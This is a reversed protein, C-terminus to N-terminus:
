KDKKREQFKPILKKEENKAKSKKKRGEKLKKREKGIKNKRSIIEKKLEEWSIRQKKM